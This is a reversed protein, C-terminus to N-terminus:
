GDRSVLLVEQHDLLGAGQWHSVGRVAYRQPQGVVQIQDGEKLDHTLDIFAVHTAGNRGDYFTVRENSLPQIDAAVGTFTASMAYRNSNGIRINRMIDIQNSQFFLTM